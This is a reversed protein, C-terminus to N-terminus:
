RFLKFPTSLVDGVLGFVDTGLQGLTDVIAKGAKIDRQPNSISGYYYVPFEAIGRMNVLATYDLQQTVFDIQGKGTVRMNAGDMVFDNNRLVGKQMQGTGRLFTFGTKSGRMEGESRSQFYGNVVDFSYSGNLAAPIDADSHLIGETSTKLVARGAVATGFNQDISLPLMDMNIAQLDARIHLSNKADARFSGTVPATYLQAKLPTCEVLGKSLGLPIHVNQFHLKYVTASSLRLIGQADTTQLWKLNWPSTSPKAGEPTPLRYKSLDFTDVNLDFKWAARTNWRGELSGTVRSTDVQAKITHLSVSDPNLSIHATGELQQLAGEPLDSVTKGLLTLIRRLQKTKVEIDGKVSYEKLVSQLFGRVEIGESSLHADELALQSTSSHFSFRGTAHAKLNQSLSTIEPSLQVSLSGPVKQVTLPLIGKRAFSLPGDLRVSTQWNRTQMMGQWEGDFTVTSDQPSRTTDSNQRRLRNSLELRSFTCKNAEGGAMLSDVYGDEIKLSTVGSLSALFTAVSKGEATWQVAANVRGGLSKSGTLAHVPREASVNKIHARLTYQTPTTATSAKLLLAGDANGGYLGGVGFRMDVAGKGGSQCRFQANQMNLPGYQLADVRLQIDYNIDPLKMSLATDSGPVPTLAKHTYVPAKPTLALAEPLATGLNISKSHADIAIVPSAWSEMSAKGEFSTEAVQIHLNPVKLGTANLAFDLTGALSDLTHQLGAPMPRGFGFWQVLSLRYITMKGTIEPWLSDAKPLMLAGQVRIRDKDLGLDLSDITIGGTGLTKGIGDMHFPISQGDFPFTGKLNASIMSTTGSSHRKQEVQIDMSHVSLMHPLSARGQIRLGGPDGRSLDLATGDMDIQVSDLRAALTDGEYVTASGIHLWGYLSDVGDTANPSIDTRIDRIHFQRGEFNQIELSGHQVMIRCNQLVSPISLTTGSPTPPLPANLTVEPRLLSIDGPEFEGRLLAMISPRVTAYAVYLTMSETSVRIDAVALAPMPLMVVDVLGMSCEIGARSRVADALHEALATPNQRLFIAMALLLAACVLTLALVMRLFTHLIQAPTRM